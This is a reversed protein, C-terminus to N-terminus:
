ATGEFTRYAAALRGAYDHEAQAPGNYITAAATWDKARLARLLRKDATVFAVFARLHERESAYMANVFAQLTDFGAQRYNEGLIQFKGWSASMLAADRDLAAAEQLRGHQRSESGYGGRKPNSIGPNTKDFRGGTHRSFKHREFLIKPEGTSLFGPGPAEVQAFAQIVSPEIGSAQGAEEYDQRTLLTAM